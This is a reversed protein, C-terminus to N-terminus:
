KKEASADDVKEGAQENQVTMAPTIPPIPNVSQQNQNMAQELRSRQEDLAKRVLELRGREVEAEEKRGTEEYIAILKERTEVREQSSGLALLYSAIADEKRKQLVLIDGRSDYFEGVNPAAEIARDILEMAESIKPPTLQTYMMALNNLALTMRPLEALLVEYENIAETLKGRAYATEALLLRAVYSTGSTAIRARLTDVTAENQGIGLKSLIMLEEQVTINTPDIAISANLFDLNVNVQGGSQVATARFKFRYADSYLRVLKGSKPFRAAGKQLIAIAEDIRNTSMLAQSTLIFNGGDNDDLKNKVKEILLDATARAQISLSNQNYIAIANLLLKPDFEAARKLFEQSEATKNEQQLLQSYILLLAPPVEDGSTGRKLHYKLTEVNIAEGKQARLFLDMALWTHAKPYGTSKTTALSEMIQRASGRSGYRDMQAAVYFRAVKNNQNIQLVRRFLMDVFEPLRKTAAASEQSSKDTTSDVANAVEIEKMAREAYWAAKTNSDSLKGVAVLSGMITVFLAVPLIMLISAWRRTQRWYAILDLFEGALDVPSFWVWQFWSTRINADLEDELDEPERKKQGFM